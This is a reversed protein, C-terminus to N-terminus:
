FRVQTGTAQDIQALALNYNYYATISSTEATALTQLANTVDLETGVGAQLRM